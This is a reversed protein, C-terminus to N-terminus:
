SMGSLFIAYAQRLAVCDIITVDVVVQTANAALPNESCTGILANPIKAAITIMALKTKAIM